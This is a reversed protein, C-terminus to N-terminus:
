ETTTSVDSDLSSLADSLAESTTDSDSALTSLADSLAESTTDSDSDLSSFANSLTESTTDSDSDLSSLADTLADSTTDVDATFESLSDVLADSTSAVDAVLEYLALWLTTSADSAALSNALEESEMATSSVSHTDIDSLIDATACLSNSDAFATSDSASSNYLLSHSSNTFLPYLSSYRSFNNFSIM